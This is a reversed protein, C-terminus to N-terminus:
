ESVQFCIPDGGSECKAIKDAMWFLLATFVIFGALSIALFANM